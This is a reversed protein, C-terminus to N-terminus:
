AAEGSVTDCQLAPGKSFQEWQRGGAAAIFTMQARTYWIVQLGLSRALLLYRLDNTVTTRGIRFAVHDHPSQATDM